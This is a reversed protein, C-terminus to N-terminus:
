AGRIDIYDYPPFRKEKSYPEKEATHKGTKDGSVPVDWRVIEGVCGANGDGCVVLIDM